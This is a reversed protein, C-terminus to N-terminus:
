PVYIAMAKGIKQLYSNSTMNGEGDTGLTQIVKNDTGLMVVGNAGLLAAENKLREVVKDMKAQWTFLLAPDKIAFGSGADLIAIKDFIEPYDAYIEVENVSIAPAREGVIIHSVPYCGIVAIAAIALSIRIIM